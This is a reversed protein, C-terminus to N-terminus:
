KRSIKPKNLKEYYKNTLTYDINRIQNDDLRTLFERELWKRIWNNATDLNIKFHNAIDKAKIKNNTIIYNAVWRERKDLTDILSIEDKSNQYIEKVRNGVAEFTNAMIGIFYELWRTIDANQRGFYFNHHLDMQLAQYYEDINKDYFEEMVYFGKLDYGYAKLIYTALLRSCRGNGDWFPHITVFEYALIGAKIPIPIDNKKNFEKIMEKILSSIDKAEPPMYVITGTISDAVVNQEKRYDNKYTIKKGSVLNHVKLILDETIVNNNEAEQNLYMLANYYNRVELVNREHSQKNNEIADKVERLSLNNGEIKTSYHVRKAITEKKIEEEISVPLELLDVVEKARNIKILDNVIKDTYNWKIDMKM